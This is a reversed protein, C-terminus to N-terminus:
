VPRASHGEETGTAADIVESELTYDVCNECLWAMFKPVRADDYFPDYDTATIADAVLPWGASLLVFAWQGFRMHHPRNTYLSNLFDTYEVLSMYTKKTAM